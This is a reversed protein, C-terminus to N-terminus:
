PQSRFFRDQRIQRTYTHITFWGELAGSSGRAAPAHIRPVYATSHALQSFLFGVVGIHSVESQSPHNFGRARHDPPALLPGISSRFSM